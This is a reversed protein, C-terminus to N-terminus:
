FLDANADSFRLLYETLLPTTEGRRLQNWYVGVKREAAAPEWFYFSGRLQLIGDAVMQSLLREGLTGKLVRRHEIKDKYRALAGKSHSRLATAIRSFRRYVARLRPDAKVQAALESYFDTWPFADAGAWSVRLDVHAVPKRTVLSDCSVAELVVATDPDSTIRPRTKGGVVLTECLLELQRARIAVSPGIEFESEGRGLTVKCPVTISADRLYRGFVIRSAPTTPVSFVFGEQREPQEGEETASVFEFEVESDDQPSQDEEDQPDAGQVTLRVFVIDTEASQLSDYLPGVHDAPIPYIESDVEDSLYFEALLRSPRYESSAVRREAASRLDGLNTRLARALVYSEFVPNAFVRGDRLFPHEPLWSSLRDEYEVALERPLGAALKPRVGLVLALLRACQEDAGYLSHWQMWGCAEAVPSLAPRLNHLLKQEHERELIRDVVHRLLGTATHLEGRPPTSGSKSLSERLSAYNGEQALMVAVADLVPAYGLVQRTLGNEVRGQSTLAQGLRDLILDRAEKFTSYHADVNASAKESFAKARVDIYREAQDLTFPEIVYLGVQVQAEELVLWATECIQTRGLLVFSTGKSQKALHAIDGLFAFFAAENVKMRAEDLADIVLFLRGAQLEAYVNGLGTPGFSDALV